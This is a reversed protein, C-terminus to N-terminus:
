KNMCFATLVFTVFSPLLSATLGRHGVASREQFQVSCYSATSM